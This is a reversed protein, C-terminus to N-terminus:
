SDRRLRADVRRVTAILEHRAKEIFRTVIDEPGYRTKIEDLREEVSCPQGTPGTTMDCYILADTIAPDGEPFEAALDDRLGREEAELLAYSHHAVLRVVDEDIGADRLYRAGDLPHFGVRAVSPAYGIDHLWAAAVLVGDLEPANATVQAARAAVGQVHQWRDPFSESLLREALTRADSSDMM